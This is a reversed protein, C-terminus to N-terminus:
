KKIKYHNLGKTEIKLEDILFQLKQLIEVKPSTIFKSLIEDLSKTENGIFDLIQYELNKPKSNQKCVDCKGCQNNSKENFYALLLQERCTDNQQAYYAMAQLRKWQTIQINEFITWLKNKFLNSERPILFRFRALYRDSYTLIENNKLRHLEERITSISSELDFAIKYENIERPSHFIGSYNRQIYDLLPKNMSQIARPSVNIQVTSQQSFNKLYIVGQTNLFDLFMFVTKPNFKYEEAFKPVDLSYDLDYIEGEGIILHSFLANTIRLFENKSPLNAKFINEANIQDDPHYLYFGKSPLGDRGARGVEQYYSEISPPLEIHFVTRVNSKDIGMGFANTAVMVQQNSETWYKQRNEKEEKTLKAHFYNADIGHNILFQTIEQTQRRNRVFVISSGKYANLYKVLDGLKDHSKIVHYSLNERQLTSQFVLPNNLELKQIIEKKIQNTATATLALIPVNPFYQKIKAIKHYAPRFDHGWESICHAEDITILNLKINQLHEIFLNSQLREPSVYLLKIKGQKSRELIQMIRTQSYESSILEAPIRNAKLTNVQDKMLAILPSIVLTTGELMIGPIQYCLSKGGSTPLVALTDNQSLVSYIIEEQLPRFDTYGWFYKLVEKPTM